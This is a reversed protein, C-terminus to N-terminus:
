RPDPSSGRRSGAAADRGKLVGLLSLMLGVLLLVHVLTGGNYLGAVGLVWVLLLLLGIKLLV